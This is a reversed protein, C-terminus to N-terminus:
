ARQMHFSRDPLVSVQQEDEKRTKSGRLWDIFLSPFQLHFLFLYAFLYENKAFGKSMFNFTERSLSSLFIKRTICWSTKNKNDKIYWELWIQHKQLHAYINKKATFNDIKLNLFLIM